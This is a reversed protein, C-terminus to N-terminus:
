RRCDRSGVSSGRLPACPRRSRTNARSIALALAAQARAGRKPSEELHWRQCRCSDTQRLDRHAEQSQRVRCQACRRRGPERDSRREARYFCLFFVHPEPHAAAEHVRKCVREIFDPAGIKIPEVFLPPSSDKLDHFARLNIFTNEDAYRFLCDVFAAVADRDAHPFQTV